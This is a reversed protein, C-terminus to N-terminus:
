GGGVFHVIEFRDGDEVPIDGHARRALIERNREVVVMGPSLGLRSLLDGVSLGDEVSRREGNLVISVAGAALPAAGRVGPGGGHSTKM